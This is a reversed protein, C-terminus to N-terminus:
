LNELYDTTRDILLHDTIRGIDNDYTEPRLHKQGDWCTIEEEQAFDLRAAVLAIAAMRASFCVAETVRVTNETVNFITTRDDYGQHSHTSVLLSTTRCIHFGSATM